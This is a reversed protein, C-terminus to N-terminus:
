EENPLKAVRAVEEYINGEYEKQKLRVLVAKGELDKLKFPKGAANQNTAERYHRLATNKGVALDLGTGEANVDLFINHTKVLSNGELTIHLDERITSPVEIDLIIDMAVYTKSPDKKGQFSTPNKVEKEFAYDVKGAAM